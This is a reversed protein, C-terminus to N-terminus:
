IWFWILFIKIKITGKGEGYPVVSYFLELAQRTIESITTDNDKAYKVLYEYLGNNVRISLVKESLRLKNDM